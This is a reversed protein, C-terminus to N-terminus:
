SRPPRPSGPPAAPQTRTPLWRLWCPVPSSGPPPLTCDGDTLAANRHSGRPPPCRAPGFPSLLFPFLPARSRIAKQGLGRGAQEQTGRDLTGPRKLEPFNPSETAYVTILICPDPSETASRTLAPSTAPRMQCSWVPLSVHCVSCM